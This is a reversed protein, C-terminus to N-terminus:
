RVVVFRATRTASRHGAGDTARLTVRWAGRRMTARGLRAKMRVLKSGAAAYTTGGGGTGRPGHLQVSLRVAESTTFAISFTRGARVRRPFVGVGSLSPAQTDTGTQSQPPATVNRPQVPGSPVQGATTAAPQTTPAQASQAIGDTVFGLMDTAGLWAYNSPKGMRDCDPKGWSVVGFLRWAGLSDKLMLPGGSDGKCTADPAQTYGACLMTSPYYSGAGAWTADAAACDSDSWLPVDVAKLSDSYVQLDKGITTRGWGMSTLMTGIPVSSGAGILAAPTAASPTALYLLALDHELTDRNWQPHRVVQVVDIHEGGAASLVQKGLVAQITDARTVSGDDETMCHAATLVLRPAVLTGGCFQRDFDNGQHLRPSFTLATMWPWIGDAPKYGAIVSAHAQNFPQLELTTAGATASSLALGALALTAIRAIFSTTRLRFM